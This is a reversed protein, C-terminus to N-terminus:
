VEERMVSDAANRADDAELRVDASDPQRDALVNSGVNRRRTEWSKRGAASRVARRRAARDRAERADAGTLWRLFRKM